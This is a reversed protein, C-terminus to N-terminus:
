NLCILSDNVMCFSKAEHYKLAHISTNFNSYIFRLQTDIFVLDNIEDPTNYEECELDLRIDELEEILEQLGRSFDLLRIYSYKMLEDFTFLKSNVEENM